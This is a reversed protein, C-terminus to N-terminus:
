IHRAVPCSTALADMWIQDELLLCLNLSKTSENNHRPGVDIGGTDGKTIIDIHSDLDREKGRHGIGGHCTTM